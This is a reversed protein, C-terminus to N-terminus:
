LGGLWHDRLKLQAAAALEECGHAPDGRRALDRRARDTRGDLAVRCDADAADRIRQCHIRLGVVALRFLLHYPGGYLRPGDRRDDAARRHAGALASDDAGP